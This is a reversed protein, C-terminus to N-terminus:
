KALLLGPIILKKLEEVTDFPNLQSDKRYFFDYQWRLAGLIGQTAINVDVERFEKGTMGNTLISSVKNEYEKRHELFETLYPAKLNRFENALLGVNLPKEYSLTVHLRILEEIQQVATLKAKLIKNLGDHFEQSIEKLLSELLGIKSPTYNYLNKIDCSMEAALDRMTMAKFGKEHILTLAKKRFNEHKTM